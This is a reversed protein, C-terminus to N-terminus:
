KDPYKPYVRTDIISGDEAHMAFYVLGFKHNFKYVFKSIGPIRSDQEVTITKILYFGWEFDDTSSKATITRTITKGDSKKLEYTEGVKDSYRVAVFPKQDKNTYDLMGESTAKFKAEVNLRGQSDKYQSPILNNYVSLAPELSLDAIIRVTNVGKESKIIEASGPVNLYSDNLRFYTDFTNGVTNLEIDPNGGLKGPDKKLFIEMECAPLLM